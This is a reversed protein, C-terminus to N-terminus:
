QGPPLLFDCTAGPPLPAKRGFRKAECTFGKRVAAYAYDGGAGIRARFPGDLECWEGPGACTVWRGGAAAEGEGSAQQAWAAPSVLLLGPALLIWAHRAPNQGAGGRHSRVPSQAGRGAFGARIRKWM